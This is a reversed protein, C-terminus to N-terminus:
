KIELYTKQEQEIQKHVNQLPKIHADRGYIYSQEDVIIKYAKNLKLARQKSPYLLYSIDNKIKKAESENLKGNKFFKNYVEDNTRFENAHNNTKLYELYENDLDLVDKLGKKDWYGWAFKRKFSFTSDTIAGITAHCGICYLTEEYSQPRLEGKIDEIFGQYVWGRKNRIGREMDGDYYSYRDPFDDNEKIEDMALEEHEIYNAWRYKKAYRLEKMRPSLKISNKTPKIYRVSHLFETGVPYLGPAIKLNKTSALGVYNKHAKTQKILDEVIQLNQKYINKDIKGNVDKWFVKPLRILVDDTSGNTPWFTGLFPRYKYAVWGTIEDNSKRDFGEKDFNFECDPIYGDWQKDNDVDWEKPLNKLKQAIIIEKDKKYNDQKIYTLIKNDSIRAIDKTRDLFLNTWRNTFAYEPFSYEEQLDEDSMFNPEVAKTHCSYCPNHLSGDIDKTKTYCQSTIYATENYLDKSQIDFAFLLNTSILLLSIAKKM